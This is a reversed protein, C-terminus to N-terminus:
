VKGKYPNECFDYKIYVEPADKGDPGEPGVPGPWGDPGKFGDRTCLLREEPITLSLEISNNDPDDLIHFFHAHDLLLKGDTDPLGSNISYVADLITIKGCYIGKGDGLSPVFNIETLNGSLAPDTSSALDIRMNYGAEIIITEESIENISEVANQAFICSDLIKAENQTFNKESFLGIYNQISESIRVYGSLIEETQIDHFPFDGKGLPFNALMVEGSDDSLVISAGSPSIQFKSMYLGKHYTLTMDLIINHPFGLLNKFPYETNSIFSLWEGEYQKPM